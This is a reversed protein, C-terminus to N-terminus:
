QYVFEQREGQARAHAAREIEDSAAVARAASQAEASTASPAVRVTAQTNKTL